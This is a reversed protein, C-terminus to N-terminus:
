ATAVPGPENVPTRTPKVVTFAQASTVSIGLYSGKELKQDFTLFGPAASGGGWGGGSGSSGFSSSAARMRPTPATTAPASSGRDANTQQACAPATFLALFLSITAATISRM